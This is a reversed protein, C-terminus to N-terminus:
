SNVHKNLIKKAFTKSKATKKIEWIKNMAEKRSLNIDVIPSPYDVGIKFNYMKQEIITM